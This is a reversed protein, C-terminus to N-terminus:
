FNFISFGLCLLQFPENISFDVSVLFRPRWLVRSRPGSVDSNRLIRPVSSVWPVWASALIGVVVVTLTRSPSLQTELFLYECGINRGDRRCEGRDGVTSSVEVGLKSEDM